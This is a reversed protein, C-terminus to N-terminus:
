STLGKLRKELIEELYEKETDAQKMCNKAEKRLNYYHTLISPIMANPDKKYVAGSAMKIEDEKPQYDGIKVIEFGDEDTGIVEADRFLFTEPSILFQRMISPYLAINYCILM